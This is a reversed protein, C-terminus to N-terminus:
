TANGNKANERDRDRQRETETKRDMETVSPGDMWEMSIEEIKFIINLKNHGRHLGEGWM